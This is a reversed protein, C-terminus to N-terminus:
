TSPPNVEAADLVLGRPSDPKARTIQLHNVIAIAGPSIHDDDPGFNGASFGFNVQLVWNGDHIEAKKIMLELLEKNSFTYTNIEPM